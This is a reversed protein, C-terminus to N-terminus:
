KPRPKFFGAGSAALDLAIQNARAAIIPVKDKGVSIAVSEAVSSGECLQSSLCADLRTTGGDACDGSFNCIVTWALATKDKNNKNDLGELYGANKIAEELRSKQIPLWVSALSPDRIVKDLAVFSADSKSSGYPANTLSSGAKGSNGIAKIVRSKLEESTAGDCREAFGTSLALKKERVDKKLSLNGIAVTMLWEEPTAPPPYPKGNAMENTIEKFRSEAAQDSIQASNKINTAQECLWVFSYAFRPNEVDGESLLKEIQATISPAGRANKWRNSRTNDAVTPTSKDNAGNQGATPPSKSSDSVSGGAMNTVNADNSRSAASRTGGYNILEKGPPTLFLFGALILLVLTAIFITKKTM